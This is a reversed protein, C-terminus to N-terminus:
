VSVPVMNLSQRKKRGSVILFIEDANQTIFASASTQCLDQGALHLRRKKWHTQTFKRAVQRNFFELLHLKLDSVNFDAGFERIMRANARTITQKCARSRDGVKRVIFRVVLELQLQGRAISDALVFRAIKGCGLPCLHDLKNLAAVQRDEIRLIRILLIRLVDTPTMARDTTHNRQRKIRIHTLEQKEMVIRIM